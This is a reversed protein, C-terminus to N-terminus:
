KCQDRLYAATMTSPALRVTNRRIRDDNRKAVKVEDWRIVLVEYMGGGDHSAVVTYDKPLGNRVCEYFYNKATEGIGYNPNKYSFCTKSCFQEPKELLSKIHKEFALIVKEAEDRLPQLDREKSVVIQKRLEAATPIVFTSKM